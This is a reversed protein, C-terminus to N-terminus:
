AALSELESLSEVAIELIREVDSAMDDSSCRMLVDLSLSASHLRNRIAHRHKSADETPSTNSARPAWRNADFEDQFLAEPMTVDVLTTQLDIRDVRIVVGLKDFRIIESCSSTLAVM